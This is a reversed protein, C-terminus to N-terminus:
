HLNEKDQFFTDFMNIPEERRIHQRSVYRPSLEVSLYQGSHDENFWGAIQANVEDADADDLQKLLAEITHRQVKMTGQSDPSKPKTKPTKRLFGLSKLPQISNNNHMTTEKKYKNICTVIEDSM